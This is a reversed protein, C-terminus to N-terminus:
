KSELTSSVTGSMKGGSQAIVTDACPSGSGMEVNAPALVDGSKEESSETDPTMTTSPRKGPHAITKVVRGCALADECRKRRLENPNAVPCKKRAAAVDAPGTRDIKGNNKGKAAAKPNKKGKGRGKGKNIGQGDAEAEMASQAPMTKPMVRTQKTGTQAKSKHGYWPEPLDSEKLRKVMESEGIQLVCSYEWKLPCSVCTPVQKAYYRQTPNCGCKSLLMRPHIGDFSTMLALPTEMNEHHM